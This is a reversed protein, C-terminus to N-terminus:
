MLGSKSQAMTAFCKSRQVNLKYVGNIENTEAVLQKKENYIHCGSQNFTVTNGNKVIQAVSLLNATLDPVCLVEKFDIERDGIVVPVNDVGKVAIKNSSASSIQKIPTSKLEAFLTEFPSMHQSAGSDIFWEDEHCHKTYYATNINTEATVIFASKETANGKKNDKGNKNPNKGNKKSGSKQPCKDAKHGRKNCSFCKVNNNTKGGKGFFASGSGNSKANYESDLLKSKILDSTIKAGSSELGMIMPAFENPLGALLISGLWEDDVPFGIGNLKNATEFMQSIYQNMSDSSELRITVLKRLLGIRRSLGRDQFLEQLKTWTEAATTSKEIHVYVSPDISLEIRAKARRLKSEDTEAGTGSVICKEYDNLKLLNRM